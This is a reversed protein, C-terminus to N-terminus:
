GARSQAAAEIAPFARLVVRLVNRPDRPALEIDFLRQFQLRLPHQETVRVLQRHDDRVFRDKAGHRREQGALPREIRLNLTNTVTEARLM